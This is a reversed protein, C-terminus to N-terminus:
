GRRYSGNSIYQFFECQRIDEWFILVFRCQQPISEMWARQEKSLRSAPMRNGTAAKVECAIYVPVPSGGAAYGTYDAIGGTGCQIVSPKGNITVVRTAPQTRFMRWGRTKFWLEAAQEAANGRKVAFRNKLRNTM